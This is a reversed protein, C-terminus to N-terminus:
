RGPVYSALWSIPAAYYSAHEGSAEVAAAAAGPAAEPHSRWYELYAPLIALMNARPNNLGGRRDAAKVYQPSVLQFLGQAHQGKYVGSTITPGPQAPILSSERFAAAVLELARGRSLHHARAISYVLRAVRVQSPALYPRTTTTSASLEKLPKASGLRLLDRLAKASWPYVPDTPAITPAQPVVPSAAIFTIGPRTLVRVGPTVLADTDFDEAPDSAGQQNNGAPTPVPLSKPAPAAVPASIYTVGPQTPTRSGHPVLADDLGGRAGGDTAVAGLSASVLQVVNRRATVEAVSVARRASVGGLEETRPSPVATAAATPQAPTRKPETFDDPNTVVASRSKNDTRHYRDGSNSDHWWYGGTQVVPKAGTGPHVSAGPDHLQLTRSTNASTPQATTRTGGANPPSTSAPTVNTVPQARAPTQGFEDIYMGTTAPM